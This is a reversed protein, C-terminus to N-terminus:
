NGAGTKYNYLEREREREREREERERERERECVCVCVCVCVKHTHTNKVQKLYQRDDKYSIFIKRMQLRSRGRFLPTKATCFTKTEHPGM